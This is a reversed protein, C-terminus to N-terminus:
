VYQGRAIHNEKMLIYDELTKIECPGLPKILALKPKSRLAHVGHLCVYGGKPAM